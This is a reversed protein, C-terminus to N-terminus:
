SSQKRKRGAGKLVEGWERAEEAEKKRQMEEREYEKDITQRHREERERRKVERTKRKRARQIDDDRENQAEDRLKRQEERTLIWPRSLTSSLFQTRSAILALEHTTTPLINLRLLSLQRTSRFTALTGKAQVTTGIDLLSLTHQLQEDETAEGGDEGFISHSKKPKPETNPRSQKATETVRRTAETNDQGAGVLEVQKKKEPKPCTVDIVAGSSDDIKFLWFKDFYDELSVVVGIVQVFQIPHNLYFLLLPPDRQRSSAHPDKNGEVALLSTTVQSYKEHRNLVTHIDLCTLKVWKSWTASAKFTYAPYFTLHAREEVPKTTLGQAAAHGDVHHKRIEPRPHPTQM